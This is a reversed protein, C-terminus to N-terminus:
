LKSVTGNMTNYRIKLNAWLTEFRVLFLLPKRISTTTKKKREKLSFHTWKGVHWDYDFCKVYGPPNFKQHLEIFRYTNPFFGLFIMMLYCKQCFPLPCAFRSGISMVDTASQRNISFTIRYRLCDLLYEWISVVVFNVITPLIWLNEAITEGGGFWRLLLRDSTTKHFSNLIPWYQYLDLSKWSRDTQYIEMKDAVSMNGRCIM